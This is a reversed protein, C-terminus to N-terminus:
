NGAQAKMMSRCADAATPWDGTRADAIAANLWAAEEQTLEGATQAATIRTAIEELKDASKRNTVAYLATAYDYATRSMDGYGGCGATPATLLCAGLLTALAPRPKRRRTM